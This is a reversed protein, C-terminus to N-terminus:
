LHETSAETACSSDWLLCGWPDRAYYSLTGMAVGVGTVQQWGEEALLSWIWHKSWLSPGAIGARGTISQSIGLRGALIQAQLKGGGQGARGADRGLEQRAGCSPTGAWPLLCLPALPHSGHPSSRRAHALPGVSPHFQERVHSGSM